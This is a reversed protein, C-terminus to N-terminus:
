SGADWAELGNKCMQTWYSEPDSTPKGTDENVAWWFALQPSDMFWAVKKALIRRDRPPGPRLCFFTAHSVPM